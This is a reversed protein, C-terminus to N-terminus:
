ASLPISMAREMVEIAISRLEPTRILNLHDQFFLRRDEEDKFRRSYVTAQFLADLKDFQKAAAAVATSGAEFDSFRVTVGRLASLNRYSSLREIRSVAAPEKAKTVGDTPVYDGIYAEGFDHTILMSIVQHEMEVTFGKIQRCLLQALFIAGLTHAAVSEITGGVPNFDRHKAIWGARPLDKLVYLELIADIYNFTPYNLNSDLMDLFSVLREGMQLSSSRLRGILAQYYKREDLGIASNEHRAKVFTFYTLM